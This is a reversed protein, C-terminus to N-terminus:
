NRNNKENKYKGRLFEGWQDAMARAIGPFTKSRLRARDKSFGFYDSFYIAKGKNPGKKYYALPKPKDVATKKGFFNDDQSYILNPLGKLWLCTRKQVADGFYYPQIIQSKKLYRNVYGVPNEIAIHPIDASWLTYFFRLAAARKEHREIAKIGHMDVNFSGNGANSLYTCPPFFIGCMWGDNIIDMVDSKIHWEPHDGSTDIIDCSFANFGKERFAKTVIQSEECGILIKMQYVTAGGNYLGPSNYDRYVSNGRFDM